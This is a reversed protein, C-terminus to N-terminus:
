VPFSLGEEKMMDYASRYGFIGRPFTNIWHQVYSIFSDPVKSIDTGKPIWRRIMRNLNENSGREWSAYPHCYYLETRRSGSSDCQIGDADLFENGNDVTIPKFIHAFQSGSLPLGDLARKVDKQSKHRIKRIIEYRTKRETMVLLCGSGGKCSVVTDMEWHGADERYKIDKPREEISQCVANNKAVRVFDMHKRGYRYKRLKKPTLHLFLGSHIYNYLTKHCLTVSFMKHNRVYGAVAAPSWKENLVKDEIFGALAYDSGLKYPRGKASQNFSAVRQAADAKYVKYKELYTDMQVVTGRKIENYITQRSKGLRRAIEAKPLGADLYAELKYRERETFYKGM